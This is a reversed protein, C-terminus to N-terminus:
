KVYTGDRIGSITHALNWNEPWSFGRESTITVKLVNDDSCVKDVVVTFEGNVHKFKCNLVTLLEQELFM